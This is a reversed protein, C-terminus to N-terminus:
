GKGGQKKCTRQTTQLEAKKMCSISSEKRHFRGTKGPCGMKKQRKCTEKSSISFMKELQAAENKVDLRVNM